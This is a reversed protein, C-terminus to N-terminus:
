FFLIAKLFVKLHYKKFIDLCHCISNVKTRGRDSYHVENFKILM